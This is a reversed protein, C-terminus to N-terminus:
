DIGHEAKAHQSSSHAVHLGVLRAIIMVMMIQGLVAELVALSRAMNRAPMIDGFGATTLTSFSFYILWGPLHSLGERPIKVDPISIVFSGPFFLDVLAYLFGCLVGVLLYICAAGCLINGTVLRAVFVTRLLIAFVYGLFLTQGALNAAILTRHLILSSAGLLIVATVALSFALAPHRASPWVAFAATAILLLTFPMLASPGRLAPAYEGFSASLPAGVIMIIISILLVGLPYETFLRNIASRGRNV